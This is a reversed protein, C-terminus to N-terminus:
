PYSCSTIKVVWIVAGAVSGGNDIQAALRNAADNITTTITPLNAQIRSIVAGTITDVVAQEAAHGADTGAVRAAIYSAPKGFLFDIISRLFTSM